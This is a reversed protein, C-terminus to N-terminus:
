FFYFLNYDRILTHRGVERYAKRKYEVTDSCSFENTSIVADQTHRLKKLNWKPIYKESIAIDYLRTGPYPTAIFFHAGHLGSRKAFEITDEFTGLNEGPLGIIFFGEVTIGLNRCWQIMKRAHTLKLPKDILEDIIKQNGSEIAILIKYCGSKKMKQLTEQNLTHIAVGGPTTWTIDLNRRIIEDCILGFRKRNLSINDDEFHIERIGYNKVLYEIEDVVNSPSRYRYGYGWISHISCFICNFPCGRSTVMYTYPVRFARIPGLNAESYESMPLLHYAPFPLEDLNEIYKDKPNFNIHSGNKYAVGLIKSLDESKSLAQVIQLMTEEGEGIVVSDVSEEKLVEHYLVTAHAGGLVVYVNKKSKKAIRAVHYANEANASTMCSIGVIDPNYNIIEKAIQEDTLSYRLYKVGNSEYVIPSRWGLAVTDLIKVNINNKELVAAIYALGIPPFVCEVYEGSKYTMPPQILLVKM